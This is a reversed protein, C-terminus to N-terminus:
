NVVNIEVIILDKKHVLILIYPDGDTTDFGIKQFFKIITKNWFRGEQKM